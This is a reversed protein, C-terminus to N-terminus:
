ETQGHEARWKEMMRAHLEEWFFLMVGGAYEPLGALPANVERFAEEWTDKDDRDPVNDRYKLWFIQAQKLLNSVQENTM